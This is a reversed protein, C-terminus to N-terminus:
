RVRTMVRLRPFTTVMGSAGRVARAISRATPSLTSSGIKQPGSPCRSSRCPAARITRRTARRAPDGFRDPRVRQPVREDGTEVGPHREAVHLFGGRVDLGAGRHPVTAGAAAEVPM